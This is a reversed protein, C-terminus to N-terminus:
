QIICAQSHDGHQGTAKAFCIAQMWEQQDNENEAHIYHVRSSEQPKLRFVYPKKDIHAESIETGELSIVKNVNNETNGYHLQTKKLCFWQRKWKHTLKTRKMLWGSKQYETNAEKNDDTAGNEGNVNSNDPHEVASSASHQQEEAM